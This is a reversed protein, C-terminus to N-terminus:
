RAHEEDALQAVLRDTRMRLRLEFNMEALIRQRVHPRADLLGAQGREHMRQGVVIQGIVRRESVPDTLRQREIKGHEIRRAQVFTDRAEALRIESSSAAASSRLGASYRRIGCCCPYRCSM